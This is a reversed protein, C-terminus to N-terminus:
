CKRRTMTCPDMAFDLHVLAENETCPHGVWNESLIHYCACFYPLLGLYPWLQVELDNWCRAFINTSNDSLVKDLVGGRVEFCTANAMEWTIPLFVSMM